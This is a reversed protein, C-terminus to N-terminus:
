RAVAYGGDAVLMQGTVYSSADSVLLLAPGVMEDAQAVRKLHSIAAMRDLAGPGGSRTM